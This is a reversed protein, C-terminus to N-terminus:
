VHIGKIKQTNLSENLQASKPSLLRKQISCNFLGNTNRAISTPSRNKKQQKDIQNRNEQASSEQGYNRNLQDTIIYIAPAILRLCINHTLLLRFVKGMYPYVYLYNIPLGLGLETMLSLTNSNFIQLFTKSIKYLLRM